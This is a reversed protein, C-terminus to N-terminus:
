RPRRAQTGVAVVQVARARRRRAGGAARRAPGRHAPRATLHRRDADYRRSSTPSSSPDPPRGRRIDTYYPLIEDPSRPTGYAMLVVGLADCTATMAGDDASTSSDVVGDLVGPDTNPQVGHGLNFIHGPARRQRRARRPARGARSPAPSCSPRISTARCSPTPASAAAPTPSRRAGTSGSSPRGAAACRSSCTTAASRRLPHRARRSPQRGARRLRSQSHPMVFREYDARSLAGAWSDFLQFAQAGHCLQVDIFAVAMDALRDM